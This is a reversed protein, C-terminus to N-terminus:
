DLRLKSETKTKTLVSELSTIAFVVFAFVDIFVVTSYNVAQNISPFLSLGFYKIAILGILTLTVVLAGHVLKMVTKKKREEQYFLEVSIKKSFDKPVEINENELTKYISKYLAIDEYSHTLEPSEIEKFSGDLLDQIEQDSYKKM